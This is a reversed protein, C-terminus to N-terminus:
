VTLWVKLASLVPVHSMSHSLVEVPSPRNTTLGHCRSGTDEQVTEPLTVVKLDRERDVKIRRGADDDDREHEDDEEGAVLDAGLREGTGDLFRVTAHSVLASVGALIALLGVAVVLLDAGEGFGFPLRPLAHGIPHVVGDVAIKVPWPKAVDAAAGVLVLTAGLVLRLRYPRLLSRFRKFFSLM